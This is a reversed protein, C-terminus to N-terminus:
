HRRQYAYLWPLGPRWYGWSPMWGGRTRTRSTSLSSDPTGWRRVPHPSRPSGCVRSCVIPMLQYLLTPHCRAKPQAAPPRFWGSTSGTVSPLTSRCRAPRCTSRCSVPAATMPPCCTPSWCCSAPPSTVRLCEQRRSHRTPRCTPRRPRRVTSACAWRGCRWSTLRAARGHRQSSAGYWSATTWHPWWGPASSRPWRSWCYGSWWGRSDGGRRASGSPRCRVTRASGAAGMPGCPQRRRC